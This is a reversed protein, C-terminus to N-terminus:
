WFLSLLYVSEYYLSKSIIGIPLNHENRNKPIYVIYM